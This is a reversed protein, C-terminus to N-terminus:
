AIEVKLAHDLFLGVESQQHFNAMQLRFFELVEVLFSMLTQLLNCIPPIIQKQITILVLMIPALELAQKILVKRLKRQGSSNM